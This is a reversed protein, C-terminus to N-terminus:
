EEQPRGDLRYFRVDDVAMEYLRNTQTSYVTSDSRFAEALKRHEQIKDQAEMMRRYAIPDGYNVAIDIRSGGTVQQERFEIKATKKVTDGSKEFEGKWYELRDEHYAAQSLAARAITSATFEFTHEHRKAM